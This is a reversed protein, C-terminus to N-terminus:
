TYLMPGFFDHGGRLSIIKIVWWINMVYQWVFLFFACFGVVEWIFVFKKMISINQSMFYVLMKAKKEPKDSM